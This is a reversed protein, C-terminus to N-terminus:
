NGGLTQRISQKQNKLAGGFGAQANLVDLKGQKLVNQAEQMRDKSFQQGRHKLAKGEFQIQARTEKGSYPALLLAAAAGVLVGLLLGETFGADRDYNM